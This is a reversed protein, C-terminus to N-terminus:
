IQLISYFPGYEFCLGGLTCPTSCTCEMVSTLPSTSFAPLPSIQHQMWIDRTGRSAHLSQHMTEESPSQMVRQARGSAEGPQYTFESVVERQEKVIKKKNKDNKNECQTEHKKWRRLFLRM